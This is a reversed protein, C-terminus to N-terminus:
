GDGFSEAHESQKKFDLFTDPLRQLTTRAFHTPNIGLDGIVRELVVKKSGIFSVARWKPRRYRLLLWQMPDCGVAWLETPDLTFLIRM